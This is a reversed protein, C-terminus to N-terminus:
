PSEACILEMDKVANDLIAKDPNGTWSGYKGCDKWAPFRIPTKYGFRKSLADMVQNRYREKLRNM